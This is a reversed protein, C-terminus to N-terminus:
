LNLRKFVREPIRTVGAMIFKWFWKVYIVDIGKKQARFISEAVEEPTATLNQPLNMKETMKTLVFGPKVTLVRVGSKHLRSRLGSLYATFGAKASGYVYNSQRGRDGAVSSVGVIFGEKRSEFDGAAADLISVCGLFNTEIIKRTEGFDKEAKEQNGLCGVFCIVGDPKPNLSNYFDHHSSFDTVDFKFAETKIRYRINLDNIDDAVNEPRRLALYIDFGALAYCRATSRAMDSGAGLILISAM